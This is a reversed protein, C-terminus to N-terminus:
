IITKFFEDNDLVTPNRAFKEKLELHVEYSKQLNGTDYYIKCLELMPFLFSYNKDNFGTPEEKVETAANLFGIAIPFKKLKEASYGLYFCYEASLEIAGLSRLLMRFAQLFKNKALLSRAAFVLASTKEWDTKVNKAARKLVAYAASYHGNFFLERGYYFYDRGCFKVGRKLAKRYLKLNRKGDGNQKKKRHEIVIDAKEVVGVLPVVEHVFGIFRYQRRFIRERYFLFTPEGAEDFAAAYKFMVIDCSLENKIKKIKEAQERTVVDDADLWMNYDCISQELSFNRASAFDDRWAFYFVKETFRLAVSVTNDTSGTDIIVIEDAFIYANELARALNEQENKVIMCLCLKNMAKDKECIIM